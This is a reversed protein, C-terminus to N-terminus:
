EVFKINAKLATSHLYDMKDFTEQVSFFIPDGAGNNTRLGGAMDAGKSLEVLEPIDEPGSIKVGVKLFAEKFGDEDIAYAFNMLTELDNDVMKKKSIYVESAM